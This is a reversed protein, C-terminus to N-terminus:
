DGRQRPVEDPARSDANTPVSASYHTEIGENDPCKTPGGDDSVMPLHSSVLWMGCVVMGGGRDREVGFCRIIRLNMRRCWNRRGGVMVGDVVGWKRWREGRNM